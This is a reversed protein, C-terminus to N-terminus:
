ASIRFCVPVYPSTISANNAGASGYTHVYCWTTSSSAAPSLTWWYHRTGGLVRRMNNAFYPYQISGAEAYSGASGLITHGYMETETPLWLNGIYAWGAANDDTLLASASYRKPLYLLKSKIVAQLAAPLYYYVGNTTFDVQTLSPNLGTGNPVHGALSNLYFYNESALWPHESGTGTITLTGAAPASAFTIVCTTNDYTYATIETTNIKVSSIAYMAKTLTYSTSSGDSTLTEVPILGNNYNVPNMRHTGWYGNSIFDIHNGIGTTAGYGTYTNIGMVRAQMSKSNTTTYPIWDNIHIGLYDGATIRAKIWAWADGGYSSTIESQFLTALNRGPYWCQDIGLVPAPSGSNLSIRDM